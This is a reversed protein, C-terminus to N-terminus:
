KRVECTLVRSVLEPAPEGNRIFVVLLRGDGAPLAVSEYVNEEERTVTFAEGQPLLKADVPAVVLRGKRRDGAHYALWRQDGVLTLSPEAVSPDTTELDPLTLTRPLSPVTDGLAALSLRYKDGKRHSALMLQGQADHAFRTLTPYGYRYKRATEVVRLEADLRWGHLVGRYRATLVYGGSGFRTAVPSEFTHLKKPDKGLALSHLPRRAQGERQAFFRMKYDTSGDDNPKGYLESGVAWVSKGGPDVMSRCDRVESTAGAVTRLKVKGLVKPFVLKPASGSAATPPAASASPISAVPTPPTPTPPPSTQPTAKPPADKEKRDMLPIGDFVLLGQDTTALGCSIRRRGEKYRDRYDAYAVVRGADNLAPTVRQLDRRGEGKPLKHGLQKDKAVAIRKLSGKGKADFVLVAPQHGFAVGLATSGGLKVPTIGTRRNAWKGWVKEDDVQCVPSEPNREPAPASTVPVASAGASARSPDGVSAVSVPTPPPDETPDCSLALLLLASSRHFRMSGVTAM